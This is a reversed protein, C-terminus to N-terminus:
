EVTHLRKMIVNFYTQLTDSNPKWAQVHWSFWTGRPGEEPIPNSDNSAKPTGDTGVRLGRPEVWFCDPAGGPYGAPAVFLVTVSSQNWGPPLQVGPVTILHAGSPLRKMTTEPRVMQLAQFQEEFPTM